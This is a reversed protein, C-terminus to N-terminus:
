KKKRKIVIVTIIGGVLLLTIPIIILWKNTAGAPKNAIQQMLALKQAELDAQAKEQKTYILSGFEDAIGNNYRYIM